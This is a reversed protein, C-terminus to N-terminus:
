KEPAPRSNKGLVAQWAQDRGIYIPESDLVSLVEKSWDTSPDDLAAYLQRHEADLDPQIMTAIVGEVEELLRGYAALDREALAYALGLRQSNIVDLRQMLQRVVNRADTDSVM